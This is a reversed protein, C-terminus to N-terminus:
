RPVSHPIWRSWCSQAGAPPRSAGRGPSGVRPIGAQAGSVSACSSGAEELSGLLRPPRSGGPGRGLGRSADRFAGDKDPSGAPRPAPPAPPDGYGVPPRRAGPLSHEPARPQPGGKRTRTEAGGRSATCPAGARGAAGFMCEGKTLVPHQSHM